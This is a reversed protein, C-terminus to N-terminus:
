RLEAADAGKGHHGARGADACPWPRGGDIVTGEGGLLTLPKDITIGGRYTGEPLRVIEGPGAAGVLSALDQVQSFATGAGTTLFVVSSLVFASIVTGPRM